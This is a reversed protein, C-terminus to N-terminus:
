KRNHAGSILRRRIILPWIVNALVLAAIGLAIIIIMWGYNGEDVVKGTLRSLLSNFWSIINPEKQLEIGATVKGHVAGTFNEDSVPNATKGTPQAGYVFFIAVALFVISAMGAYLALKVRSFSKFSNSSTELNVDEPKIYRKKVKDGERYSEYYYPGYTKGWKKIYKKHVM